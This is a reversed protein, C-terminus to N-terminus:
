DELHLKYKYRDRGLMFNLHTQCYRKGEFVGTEGEPYPMGETKVIGDGNVTMMDAGGTSGTITEDDEFCEGDDNEGTPSSLLVTGAADGGAWSGSELV